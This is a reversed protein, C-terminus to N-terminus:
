THSHSAMYKVLVGEIIGLVKHIFPRQIVGKIFAPFDNSVCLELTLYLM